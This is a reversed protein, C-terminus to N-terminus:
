RSAQGAHGPDHTCTYPSPAPRCAPTEPEPIAAVAIVAHLEAPRTPAMMNM